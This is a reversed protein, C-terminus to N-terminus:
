WIWRAFGALSDTLSDASLLVMIQLSSEGLLDLSDPSRIRRTFVLQQTLFFSFSFSFSDASPQKYPHQRGEGLCGKEAFRVGVTM